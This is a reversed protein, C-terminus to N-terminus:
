WRPSLMIVWRVQISAGSDSIIPNRKIESGAWGDNHLVRSIAIIAELGLPFYVTGDTKAAPPWFEFEGVFIGREGEPPTRIMQSTINDLGCPM